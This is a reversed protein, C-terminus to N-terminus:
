QGGSPCLRCDPQQAQSSVAALASPCDPLQQQAQSSVAALASPCDPLQQQAQSSVAALASPCDPLQQQAQHRKANQSLQCRLGKYTRLYIAYDVLRNVAGHERSVAQAEEFGLELAASLRKLAPIDLEQSELLQLEENQLSPM